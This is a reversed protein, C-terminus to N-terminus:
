RGEAEEPEIRWTDSRKIQSLRKQLAQREKLEPPVRGQQFAEEVKQQVEFLQRELNERELDRLFILTERRAMAPDYELDLGAQVRLLRSVDVDGVADLVDPLDHGQLLMGIARLAEMNDTLWEPHPFANLERAVEESHHLMLWILTKLRPSPNWHSPQPRVRESRRSAGVKEWVSRREVRLYRAVRELHVDQAAGSLRRLLPAVADVAQQRGGPTPGFRTSVQRLVVDFLPESRTLMDDFKEAGFEQIYEDPDKANEVALRLPEIGASFFLPLSREAARMGAEDADFLAIVTGTLTRISQLHQETMATGCTAVTEPFGAQHLAIVDFYGEVVLMRNNRQIASVAHSLGYLTRSKKYIDTEPSNVYKPAGDRAHLIRGGFAIPRSRRDFIPIIVRDRFLDYAGRNPNGPERWRALGAAVAQEVSVGETHLFNLLDDWADAAFGVQFTSISEDSLGRKELYAKAEAGVERTLLNAQWHQAALQCIDYLSSRARIRRIEQPTLEKDEVSIGCQEGLEKVAEYFSLGRTKQVFAFIDGGENCGFCHFINKSPVVSFSPTKEQHFPCLGMLSSGKRKLTVEQSVVDVISVRERIAEISERPIRM